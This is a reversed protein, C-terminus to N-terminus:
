SFQPPGAVADKADRLRRYYDTANPWLYLYWFLFTMTILSDQRLVFKVSGDLSIAATSASWGQIVFSLLVFAILAPRGWAKEKWIAYAVWFAALGLLAQLLAGRLQLEPNPLDSGASLRLLFTVLGVLGSVGGFLLAVGM